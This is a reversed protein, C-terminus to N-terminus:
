ERVLELVAVGYDSNEEGYAPHSIIVGGYLVPQHSLWPLDCPFTPPIIENGEGDIIGLLGDRLAPYLGDYPLGIYDYGFKERFAALDGDTLEGSEFAAFYFHENYEKTAAEEWQRYEESSYVEYKEAETETLTGIERGKKDLYVWTGDTKKVPLRGDIFRHPEQEVSYLTGNLMKGTKDIYNVGYNNQTYSGDLSVYILAYGDAFIRAYLNDTPEPAPSYGCCRLTIKQGDYTGAASSPLEAPLRGAGTYEKPIDGDGCACLMLTFIVALLVTTIKKM